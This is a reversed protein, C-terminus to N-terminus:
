AVSSLQEALCTAFKCIRLKTFIFGERFPLIVRVNISIPLDQRLRLNKVDSTLRKISNALVFNERFNGFRFYIREFLKIYNAIMLSVKSKAFGHLSIDLINTLASARLAPILQIDITYITVLFFSIYQCLVWISIPFDTHCFIHLCAWRAM